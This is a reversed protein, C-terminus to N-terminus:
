APGFVKQIVGNHSASGYRAVTYGLAADGVDEMNWILVGDTVGQNKVGSMQSGDLRLIYFPTSTSVRFVLKTLFRVHLTPMLSSGLPGMHDREGSVTFGGDNGTVHFTLSSHPITNIRSKRPTNAWSAHMKSPVDFNPRNNACAICGAVAPPETTLGHASLIEDIRAEIASIMTSDWKRKDVNYFREWWSLYKDGGGVNTVLSEPGAGPFARKWAGWVYELAEKNTKPVLSKFYLLLTRVGRCRHVSCDQRLHSPGYPVFHSKKDMLADIIARVNSRFSEQNAAVPDTIGWFEMLPAVDIGLASTMRVIRQTDSTDLPRMREFAANEARQYALFGDWGVLAVIDVYKHWSRRQYGAYNYSMQNGNVFLDEKMWDVVAQDLSMSCEGSDASATFASDLDYGCAQNYLYIIMVEIATEGENSFALARNTYMHGLEHWTVHSDVCWNMIYHDVREDAIVPSNVMPWGVGGGTTRMAMDVSTYLMPHDTAGVADLGPTGRFVVVGKCLSEYKFALDRVREYITTLGPIDSLWNHLSVNEEVWQSPVHVLAHDTEIDVTPPGGSEVNRALDWQAQSTIEQFGTVDDSVIRFMRSPVVNTATLTVMGIDIGYPVLVYLSGGLPNYVRVTSRDLLFHTAVRDMRVHKGGGHGGENLSPDNRHEGVCLQIGTNIMSEPVTVESVVGRSVWMGTCRPVPATFYDGPIGGVPRNRIKLVVSMTRATDTVNTTQGKIHTATRWQASEAHSQLQKTRLASAYSIAYESSVYYHRYPSTAQLGADWVIQQFFLMGRALRHTNLQRSASQGTAHQYPAFGYYHAESQYLTLPKEKWSVNTPGVFLPGHSAEFKGIIDLARKLNLGDAKQLACHGIIRINRLASEFNSDDASSNTSPSKFKDVYADVVDLDAAFGDYRARLNNIVFYEYLAQIEHIHLSRYVFSASCIDFSLRGSPSASNSSEALTVDGSHVQEYWSVTHEYRTGNLSMIFSKSGDYQLSFWFWEGVRPCDHMSTWRGRGGDRLVFPYQTSQAYPSLTKWYSDGWTPGFLDAKVNASTIEGNFYDAVDSKIELSIRVHSTRLLVVTGRTQGAAIRIWAMFTFPKTVDCTAKTRDYVVLENESLGPLSQVELGTATPHDTTTVSARTYTSLFNRSDLLDSYVDVYRTERVTVDNRTVWYAIVYEGTENGVSSATSVTAGGKTIMTTISGTIDDGMHSASVGSDVYADFRRHYVRKPSVTLVPPDTPAVVNVTRTATVVSTVQTSPTNTTRLTYTVTYTGTTTIRGDLDLAPVGTIGVERSTKGFADTATYGPDTWADGPKMSMTTPANLVLTPQQIIRVVRTATATEGTGNSVTYVITHATDVTTTPITAPDAPNTTVGGGSNTTFVGAAYDYTVGQRWYVVTPNLTVTPKPAKVVITRSFAQDTLTPFTVGGAKYSLTYTVVYTQATTLNRYADAAPSNTVTVEPEAMVGGSDITYGPDDLPEGVYRTVSAGGLGTITPQRVVVIVRSSTTTGKANSVSYTVNYTGLATGENIPPSITPTLPARVGEFAHYCAVGLEQYAKGQVHYMTTPSIELAPAADPVSSSAAVLFGTAGGYEFPADIGAIKVYLTNIGPASPTL